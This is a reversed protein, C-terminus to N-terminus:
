YVEWGKGLDPFIIPGRGDEVHDLQAHLTRLPHQMAFDRAQREDPMFSKKVVYRFARKRGQSDKVVFFYGWYDAGDPVTADRLSIEFTEGKTNTYSAREQM